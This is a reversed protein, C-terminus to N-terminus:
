TGITCRKRRRLIARAMWGLMLVSFIIIGWETLTPIISLKKGFSYSDLQLHITNNDFDVQGSGYAKAVIDVFGVSSVHITAEAMIEGTEWLISGSGGEFVFDSIEVPVDAVYADFQGQGETVTFHSFGNNIEDEIQLNFSAQVLDVTLILGSMCLQMSTPIQASFELEAGPDIQDTSQFDTEEIPRGVKPGECQKVEIDDDPPPAVMAFVCDANPIPNGDVYLEGRPYPDEGHGEMVCWIHEYGSETSLRIFYTGALLFVGDGLDFDYFAHDAFAVERSVEILPNTSDPHDWISLTVSSSDWPNGDPDTKLRVMVQSVITSDQLVVKQSVAWEDDMTFELSNMNATYKDILFGGCARSDQAYAHVSLTLVVIM